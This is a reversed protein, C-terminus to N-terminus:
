FPTPTKNKHAKPTGYFQPIRMPQQLGRTFYLREEPLMSKTYKSLITNLKTSISKIRDLAVAESLQSYTDQQLHEQLIHKIYESREMICPGLNKDAMLIILSPNAKLYKIHQQQLYTLNTSTTANFQHNSKITDLHQIFANLRQETHDDM